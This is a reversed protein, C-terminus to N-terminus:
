TFVLDGGLNSATPLLGCSNAGPNARNLQGATNLAQLEAASCTKDHLRAEHVLADLAAHVPQCPHCKM